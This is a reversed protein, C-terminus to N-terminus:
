FVDNVDLPDDPITLDYARIWHAMLRAQAGYMLAVSQSRALAFHAELPTEATGDISRWDFRPLYGSQHWHAHCGRCLPVTFMDDAKRAGGAGGEMFHHAECLPSRNCAACAHGRVFNLYDPSRWPKSKPFMM